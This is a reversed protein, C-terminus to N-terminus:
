LPQVTLYGNGQCHSCTRTIAERDCGDFRGGGESGVVIDGTEDCSDCPIHVPNIELVGTTWLLDVPESHRLGLVEKVEQTVVSRFAEEDTGRWGGMPIDGYWAVLSVGRDTHSTAYRTDNMIGRGKRDAM